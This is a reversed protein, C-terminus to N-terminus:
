DEEDGHDRLGLPDREVDGLRLRFEDLPPRRLVAAHAEADDEPELPEPRDGAGRQDRNQEKAAPGPRHEGLYPDRVDRRGPVQPRDRDERLLEPERQLDVRDEDDEHPDSPGHGADTDVLDQVDTPLPQEREGEERDQQGGERPAHPPESSAATRPGPDGPRPPVVATSRSTTAKRMRDPSSTPAATIVTVALFSTCLTNQSATVNIVIAPM